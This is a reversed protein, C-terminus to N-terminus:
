KGTSDTVDKLLLIMLSRRCMQKQPKQIRIGSWIIVYM